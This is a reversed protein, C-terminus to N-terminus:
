VGWGWSRFLAKYFGVHPVLSRSLSRKLSEQLSHSLSRSLSPCLSLSPSGVPLEKAVPRSKLKFVGTWHMNAIGLWVAQLRNESKGKLM